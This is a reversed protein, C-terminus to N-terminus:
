ANDRICDKNLPNEIFVQKYLTKYKYTAGRLFYIGIGMIIFGILMCIPNVLVMLLGGGCFGAILLIIGLTGRLSLQNIEKIKQQINM